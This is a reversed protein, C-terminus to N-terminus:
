WHNKSKSYWLISGIFGVPGLVRMLDWFTHAVKSTGEDALGGWAGLTGIGTAILFIAFLVAKWHKKIFEM